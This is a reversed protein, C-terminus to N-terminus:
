RGVAQTETPTTGAPPAFVSGTAPANAPQATGFVGPAQAGGVGQGPARPVEQPVFVWDRYDDAERTKPAPAGAQQLPAGTQARAGVPQPTPKVGPIGGSAPGSPLTISRGDDSVIGPTMGVTVYDPLQTSLPKGHALSYVGVVRGDRLVTGWEAKRTVPDVYIRRLHRLLVSKRRDELLDELKAPYSQAGDGGADRYSQLARSFEGGIFLLEQERSRKANTAWLQAAGAMTAGLAAVAFLLLVYTYGRAGRPPTRCSPSSALAPM